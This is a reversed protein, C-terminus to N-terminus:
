LRSLLESKKEDFEKQTLIGKEKLNALKEIANFISASDRERAPAETQLPEAPGHVYETKRGNVSVVPLRNLDIRGHQSTFTVTTGNGQQQSVGSIHHDLTDYVTLVGQEDVALRNTAPFFAYRLNNQSGSSSPTGLDTPWWNEAMRFNSPSEKLNNLFLEESAILLSLQNGLQEVKAKVNHNFMEGVMTMGGKMWQGSGGLEPINFQAM